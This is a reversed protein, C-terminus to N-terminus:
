PREKVLALFRASAGALETSRYSWMYRGAKTSIGDANGLFLEVETSGDM